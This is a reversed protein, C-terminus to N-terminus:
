LSCSAHRNGAYDDREVVVTSYDRWKDPYGVNNVIAQLKKYAQQKTADSM